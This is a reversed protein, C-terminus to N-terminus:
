DLPVTVHRDWFVEHITEAILGRFPLYYHLETSIIIPYLSAVFRYKAIASCVECLSVLTKGHFIMPKTDTNYINVSYFLLTELSIMIISSLFM